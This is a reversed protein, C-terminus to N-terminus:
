AQGRTMSSVASAFVGQSLSRAQLAGALTVQGSLSVAAAPAYVYAHINSGSSIAIPGQTWLRLLFPNGGLNVHSNGSISVSGTVLIRVAGSVRLRSNGSLSVTDLLYTGAPLTLGDSGSLAISRGGNGGLGPLGRDTRPVRANDNNAELIGRLAALDIPACDFASTAVRKQGTIVPNGSTIVRKGPGAVVDGEIRASGSITVNANSRVHAKGASDPTGAVGESTIASNGSITVDLCSLAAHSALDAPVDFTASVGWGPPATLVSLLLPLAFGHLARSAWLSRGGADVRSRSTWDSSCGDQALSPTTLRAPRATCRLGWGLRRQLMNGSADMRLRDFGPLLRRKSM